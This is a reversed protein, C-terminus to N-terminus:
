LLHLYSLVLIVAMFLLAFLVYHQIKGTQFVALKSLNVNVENLLKDIFRRKISSQESAYRRKVPFLDNDEITEMTNEANKSATMLKELSNSFSFATYQLKPTPASYGCGWTPAKTVTRKSLVRKRLWWLVATLAVLSLSVLCVNQLAYIFSGDVANGTRFVQETVGSIIDLAVFPFFAIFLMVGLPLLLPLIM